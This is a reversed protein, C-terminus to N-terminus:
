KVVTTSLNLQRQRTNRFIKTTYVHLPIHKQLHSSGLCLFLSPSLCCTVHLHGLWASDALGRPSGQHEKIVANHGRQEPLLLVHSADEIPAM